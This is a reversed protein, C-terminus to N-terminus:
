EGQGLLVTEGLQSLGLHLVHEQIDIPEIDVLPLPEIALPQPLHPHLDLVGGGKLVLGGQGGLEM